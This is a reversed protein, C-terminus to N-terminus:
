DPKSRNSKGSGSPNESHGNRGEEVNALRKELEAMHSSLGDVLGIMRDLKGNMESFQQEPTKEEELIGNEILMKKYAELLELAQEMESKLSDYAEATYGVPQPQNQPYISVLRDGDRRVMLTENQVYMNDPM